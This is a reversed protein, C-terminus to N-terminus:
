VAWCCICTCKPVKTWSSGYDLNCFYLYCSLHWNRDCCERTVFKLHHYQKQM